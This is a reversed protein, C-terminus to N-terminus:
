WWWSWYCCWGLRKQMLISWWCLLARRWLHEKFDARIEHSPCLWPSTSHCHSLIKPDPNPSKISKSFVLIEYFFMFSLIQAECRPLDCAQEWVDCAFPKPTACARFFWIICYLYSELNLTTSIQHLFYFWSKLPFFFISGWMRIVWEDVRVYCLLNENSFGSTEFDNVLWVFLRM